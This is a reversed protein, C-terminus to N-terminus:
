HGSSIQTAGIAGRQDELRFVQGSAIHALYLSIVATHRAKNNGAVLCSGDSALSISRM